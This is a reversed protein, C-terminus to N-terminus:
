SSASTSKGKSVTLRITSGYKVYNGAYYDDYDIVIGEAYESSYIETGKQPVFGLSTLTSSAQALTMGSVNPLQRTSSGKSVVVAIVSGKSMKSTASFSPTQSIISGEPVTDSFEESSVLVQYNGSATATAVAKDYDMGVLNPVSIEANNPTASSTQSSSSAQSSSLSSSSNSSSIDENSNGTSFFIFYFAISVGILLVAIIVVWFMPSIFTKNKKVDSDQLNEDNNEAMDDMAMNVTPAASLEDRLRELTKTREDKYVQLGNALAAVVHPPLTKLIATPIMLKGDNKRKTASAPLEGTLAFFLCSMIGYVDTYEGMAAGHMYQELAACGDYIDPKLDSDKRRVESICFGKLRMKGTRLIILNQPTIGFHSVGGRWMEGLACIVPMFLQRATNWDIQGGSREVFEELTIHEVWEAVVYNTGNQSFIDYIPIIAGLSRLSGMRRNYALFSEQTEKFSLESGRAPIVTGDKARSCLNRPMYERIYVSTKQNTDYGIYGIGEGNVDISKGVIYRDQLKYRLPLAGDYQPEDETYGCHPCIKNNGKDQMCAM